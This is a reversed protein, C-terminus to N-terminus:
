NKGSLFGLSRYIRQFCNLLFLFKITYKISIFVSGLLAGGGVTAVGIMAYRKIKRM